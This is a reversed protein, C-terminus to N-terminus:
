SRAGGGIVSLAEVDAGAGRLSDLGDALTFAVGELAVQALTTQTGEHTLGFLGRRM